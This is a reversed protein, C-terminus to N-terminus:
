GFLRFDSVQSFLPVPVRIETLALVGIRLLQLLKFAYVFVLFLEERRAFCSSSLLTAASFIMTAVDASSTLHLEM